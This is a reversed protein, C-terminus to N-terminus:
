NGDIIITETLNNTYTERIRYDITAYNEAVRWLIKDARGVKNDQTKILNNGLLTFFDGCCFAEQKGQYLKYQNGRSAFSVSHFGQSFPFPLLSSGTMLTSAATLEKNDAVLKNSANFIGFKPIGIFDSSLMLWGIRNNLINTPVQPIQFNSGVFNLVANLAGTLFNVIGALSNIVDNLINGVVTLTEKRKCLAMPIRREELGRLLLNKKNSVVTPTLTLQCNTGDFENYTNLEQNDLEWTVFYNSAVEPANTKYKGWRDEALKLAVFGSQNLFWYKREFRLNNGQVSFEGNFITQMAILLEAFTWDLYGYADPSNSDDVDRSGPIVVKKPIVVANSYQTNTFIASSFNLGLYSCARDMLTELRMGKKYKAPQIINDILSQMLKILAVLLAALYVLYLAMKVLAVATIFPDLAEAILDAIQKTIEIIEKVMIFTSLSLIMIQTYDPIESIVYPIDLYDSSTIAGPASSPLSALYAFSFGAAVDNIFDVKAAERVPCAVRECEIETSENTLDLVGDFMQGSNCDLIKFPMGEFIGPGGTLGNNIWTNIRKAQDGLFEFSTTRLSASPKDDEFSAEMEIEKWNAPESVPVNNLFFKLM